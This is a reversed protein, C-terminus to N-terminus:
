IVTWHLVGYVSVAVSGIDYLMFDCVHMFIRALCERAKKYVVLLM